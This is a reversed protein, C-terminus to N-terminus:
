FGGSHSKKEGRGLRLAEELQTIVVAWIEPLPKDVELGHLKGKMFFFFWCIKKRKRSHCLIGTLETQQQIITQSGLSLNGIWLKTWIYISALSIAMDSHWLILNVKSVLGCDSAFVPPFFFNLRCDATLNIVKQLMWLRVWSERAALSFCSVFLMLHMLHHACMPRHYIYNGSGEM